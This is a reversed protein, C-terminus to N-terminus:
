TKGAPTTTEPPPTEATTGKGRGDLRVPALGHKAFIDRDGRLRDEVRVLLVYLVPVLFLNLFTSVIMGGFVATGLSNRAAAGDGNAIVLPFIGLIFAISTMLIPRLRTEAAKTVAAYEDLGTKRLQNAFEVILIANKSALGILMLFGIQAYVDSVGGAQYPLMARLAIAALAGLMALPVALLIILPDIFSEYQAALVLFTFVIGLVFILAAQTGGEIQERSIGSWEYGLGPTVASVQAFIKQMAAIADGSGHGAAPAGNLEVSRFLNFHTIIPATKDTRTQMLSSIPTLGNTASRVYLHQFDDLRDRYPADAQVYVRYSRSLYNFDNVYLSGLYVQMSNFVDLLPIGLSKAKDRDVQAVLEPTGVSFTTYVRSLAPDKAAIGMMGYANYALPVLGVGGRDQLEFAFGGQIGLGQVAPPNIPFASTGPIQSFAGYLRGIVAGVSHPGGGREKLPQLRVFMTGKNSGNGTFGFGGVDFVDTIEPQRKLIGEITLQTKAMTDASTGEPNQISVILFGQDEDPVFGSPTHKYVFWTLGLAAVFLMVVLVRAKLVHPLFSHYRHRTGDIVANIGGFFGRHSDDHKRLFLASLVPTLTLANFLSITISCAITLAFQKYLLGTTGPFFGVPVFVSLLVLSTAVVAGAIEKMAASAAELPEMGKDRIFRAINEIVVIADDVVLGTALTLGFLTLTNISFNLLKMLAFTGILSIPITISPILTTRWDQLFLFIVLVVLGVAVFLTFIVDNISNRVFDTSDFAVKYRVGAPFRPALRQMTALVQRSVDLANGNPLLQVGIGIADRGDFHLNTSYDEAGVEIRSVDALKVLGGDPTARLIINQFDKVDKLRGTATVPYEYPQNGTTPPAGIKGAAVQVNQDQLAAVVDGASLGRDALKRPDVWIRMAYKRAGFILVNGVGNIRRLENTINLDAYNSLNLSTYNPNESWMGLAMIFSGSNKRVTVGTLNVENPLRGTASQISNQVDTAAQDLDRDLSFVATISSSGDNSSTSTLYRLGQIGNIAEELPTTVTSEVTEASAGTYNATVTVTPPAIKPFQAIPLNPIAVLGALLIVISCVTAFVPRRLFFEVV